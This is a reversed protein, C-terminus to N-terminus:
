IREVSLISGRKQEKMIKTLARMINQPWHDLMMRPM